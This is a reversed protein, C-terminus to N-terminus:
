QLKVSEQGSTRHATMTLTFVSSLYTFMTVNKLTHDDIKVPQDINDDCVVMKRSEPCDKNALVLLLMQGSVGITTMLRGKDAEDM